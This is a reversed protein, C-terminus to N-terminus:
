GARRTDLNVMQFGALNSKNALRDGHEGLFIEALGILHCPKPTCHVETKLTHTIEGMHRLNVNNEIRCDYIM